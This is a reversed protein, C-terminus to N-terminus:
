QFLLNGSHIQPSNGCHLLVVSSQAPLVIAIEGTSELMTEATQLPGLYSADETHLLVKWQGPEAEDKLTQERDSFNFFALLVSTGEERRVILIQRGDHGWAKTHRKNLTSLAPIHQRLQILRAYLRTMAAGEPSVSTPLKSRIYAEESHPDVPEGNRFFAHFERARGEQVNKVLVEDGHSEFYLFPNQTGLEEGMFLLPIFPSVLVAVASIKLQSFELLTSLRSGDPRNGIQDHNQSFVVFRVGELPRSDAGHHKKRYNSYVGDYVYGDTYAKALQSMRGFDEYYGHTEGTLVAHLAHHFDDNWQSDAGMGGLEPPQACRPDNRDNEAIVYVRRHLQRALTHVRTCLQELFTVASSDIIAHIADLRLADVHCERIWFEANGIFFDRVGDRYAGDFNVAAGWPTHYNDNFYPGFESLYNGEPGLHNYVVDLIVAIGLSHAADVFHQFGRLGGYAEVAAYLYVGDYGWNRTGPFQAIPMVEVATIGLKKLRPLERIAAEFTGEATFTGVHFEYIIYEDLPPGAWGEDTWDFHPDVVASPGHVDNAPQQLSAPDPRPAKGDISYKYQAGPGCANVATRWYGEGARELPQTEWEDAAAGRQFHLEVSEALPAWVRFVTSNSARCYRAGHKLMNM